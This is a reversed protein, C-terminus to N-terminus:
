ADAETLGIGAGDEVVLRGTDRWEISRYFEVASTTQTEDARVVLRVTPTETPRPTGTVEGPETTPSATDTPVVLTDTQRATKDATETSNQTNNCGALAIAGGVAALFQRRSTTVWM